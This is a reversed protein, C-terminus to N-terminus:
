QPNRMASTMPSAEFIRLLDIAEEQIALSHWCASVCLIIERYGPQYTKAASLCDAANVRHRRADGHYRAAADQSSLNTVLREKATSTQAFRSVDHWGAM